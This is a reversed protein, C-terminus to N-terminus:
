LYIGAKLMEFLREREEDTCTIGSLDIYRIKTFGKIDNLKLSINSMYGNEKTFTSALSIKPRIFILYAKQVSLYGANISLNGSRDFNRQSTLVNTASSALASATALPNGSAVSSGTTLISNIITSKLQASNQSTLPLESYISGAYQYIVSNLTDKKSRIFAVCMGTAFSILYDLYIIGDMFEQINIDRYGIYPLYILVTTQYDLFNGYFESVNLTGFSFYQYESLVPMAQVNSGKGGVKIEINDGLNSPLIPCMYLGIILSLPDIWLHEFINDSWLWESFQM